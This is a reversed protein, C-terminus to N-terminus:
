YWTVSQAHQETLTVFGAMDVTALRHHTATGALGRAVLDEELLFVAYETQTWCPLGPNLAATVGEEILLLTDGAQIAQEVQQAVESTPATTLIHLIM